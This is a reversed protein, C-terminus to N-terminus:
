QPEGALLRAGPKTLSGDPPSHSPYPLFLIIWTFLRVPSFAPSQDTPSSGAELDCDSLPERNRKVRAEETQM